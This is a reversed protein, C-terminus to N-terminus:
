QELFALVEVKTTENTVEMGKEKAMKKLTSLHMEALPTEEADGSPEAESEDSREVQEVEPMSEEVSEVVVKKEKKAKITKELKPLTIESMVIEDTRPDKGQAKLELLQGHTYTKGNINWKQSM